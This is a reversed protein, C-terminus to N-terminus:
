WELHKARCPTRRGAIRLVRHRRDRQARPLRFRTLDPQGADDDDHRHGFAVQVPLPQHPGPKKAAASLRAHFWRHVRGRRRGCPPRRAAGGTRWRRGPSTSCSGSSRISRTRRGRHCGSSSRTSNTSVASSDAAAPSSRAWRPPIPITIGIPTGDHKPFWAPPTPRAASCTGCPPPRILEGGPLRCGIGVIALPPRGGTETLM